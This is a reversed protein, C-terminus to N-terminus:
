NRCRIMDGGDTMLLITPGDTNMLSIFISETLVTRLYMLARKMDRLTADHVTDFGSQYLDEMLGLVEATLEDIVEYKSKHEM